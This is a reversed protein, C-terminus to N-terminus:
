ASERPPPGARWGSRRPCLRRCLNCKKLLFGRDNRVNSLPRCRFQDVTTGDLAAAPCEDLCRSCGPLCAEYDAPPDPSLPADVLLAGLQIMSGFRDNILLTNRGLRGLGAAQGAHRLSLLGRAYTRGPEWHDSPDDSPVPVCALGRAELRRSLELTLRDVERTIAENAWSYPLPSESLLTGAPLSKAFVVVAACRDFVERPRFGAPAGDLRGPPAIGCLEAGCERAIAKVERADIMTM